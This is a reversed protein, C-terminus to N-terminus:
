RAVPIAGAKEILGDARGSTAYDFFDKVSGTLEENKKTVFIFNRQIKYTGDRITEISPMVGDIRVTKVNDKVSALSTYGIANPNSAVTQIVDGNSTLELSYKCLDDTGTVSEFGNRTGSAAERGIAVIPADDGGLESWNTIKGTYLSSIDELSINDTRNECNVIVAIGDIAVATGTLSEKESDKLTRSSLGIDCVGDSVAKIGSSSGTPNYTIKVNPNENMYSESLYGMVKEMSSSGDTSVTDGVTRGASGCGSFLLATLASTLLAGTINKM